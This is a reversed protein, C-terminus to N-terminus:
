NNETSGDEYLYDIMGSSRADSESKIDIRWGTLKAALRANQGRIGIALSLHSDPVVVITSRDEDNVFVEYVHSPSLSSAVYEIPDESWEVIDIKEGHLEEVIMHVREGKEGVCSGIPDVDAHHSYVAVKAREGAERVVSKIEVIKQNIEPVELKFLERLLDPAKRSVFVRAGKPTNEVKIIIVKIVDRVRYKESNPVETIPLIAETSGINIYYNRNDKRQLIGSVMKGVQNIYENYLLEREAERVRQVIVQKANAAAVRGFDKPTVEIEIIDGVCYLDSLKRAETLLIDLREDDIVEKIEKKAYVKVNGTLTNFEVRVNQAKNFNKQYAAVLAMEIAEVLVSFEIGKEAELMKLATLLDGNM